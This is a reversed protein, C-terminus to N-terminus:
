RKALDSAKGGLKEAYVKERNLYQQKHMQTVYENTSDENLQELTLIVLGREEDVRPSFQLSKIGSETSHQASAVGTHYIDKKYPQEVSLHFGNTLAELWPTFQSSTESVEKVGEPLVASATNWDKHGFLQSVVDLCQGHSVKVDFKEQLLKALHKSRAKLQERTPVSMYSGRETSM